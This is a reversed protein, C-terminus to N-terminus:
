PLNGTRLRLGIGITVPTTTALLSEGLEENYGFGVGGHLEFGDSLPLAYGLTIYGGFYLREEVVEGGSTTRSWALPGYGLDWYGRGAETLPGGIGVAGGTMGRMSGMGVYFISEANRFFIQGGIDGGYASGSGAALWTGDQASGTSPHLSIALAGVLLLRHM